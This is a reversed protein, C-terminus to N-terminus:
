IEEDVFTIHRFYHQAEFSAGLAGVLVALSAVLGALSGYHKWTVADDSLTMWHRILDAHFLLASVAAILGFTIAFTVSMGLFVISVASVNTIVSQESIRRERRVLLQQRRTIYVTTALIAAVAFGALSVLSQRAALDWSEATIMLILSTSFAATTLRNLRVPFQWPRANRVADAIEHRNIWASKLYFAAAGQRRAAGVEELRLDAILKLTKALDDQQQSSFSAEVMRDLDAVSRIPGMLNSADDTQELSNIHGFSHQILVALRHSVSRIRRHSEAAPDEMRPDIRVTSVVATDVSRSIAAFAFPKYHTILDAPTIVFVFDWDRGDREERAIDILPTPEIRSGNALERRWVLEVSWDFRSFTEAFFTQLNQQSQQVARSDVEDLEGAVILGVEIPRLASDNTM